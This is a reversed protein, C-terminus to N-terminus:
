LGYILPAMEKTFQENLRQIDADIGSRHIIKSLRNYDVTHNHTHPKRVSDIAAISADVLIEAGAVIAIDNELVALDRRGLAIEENAYKVVEGVNGNHRALLDRYFAAKPDVFVRCNFEPPMYIRQMEFHAGFVLREAAEKVEEVLGAIDERLQEIRSEMLANAKKLESKKTEIDEKLEYLDGVETPMSAITAGDFIAQADIKALCVKLKLLEPLFLQELSDKKVSDVM